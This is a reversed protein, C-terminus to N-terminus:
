PESGKVMPIDKHSRKEMLNCTAEFVTDIQDNGFTTAIGILEVDKRGLLYLITLADDVDRHPIGMTNDCDYIIKKM